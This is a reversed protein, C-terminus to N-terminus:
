WIPWHDPGNQAIFFFIDDEFDEYDHFHQDFSVQDFTEATSMSTSPSYHREGETVGAAAASAAGVNDGGGRSSQLSMIKKEAEM